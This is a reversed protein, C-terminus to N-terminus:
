SCWAWIRCITELQLELNKRLSGLSPTATDTWHDGILDQLLERTTVPSFNGPVVEENPTAIIEMEEEAETLTEDMEEGEGAEPSDRKLADEFRGEVPFSRKDGPTDVSLPSPTAPDM